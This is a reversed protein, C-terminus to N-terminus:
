SQAPVTQCGTWGSVHVFLGQANRPVATMDCIAVFLELASDVAAPNAGMQGVHAGAM